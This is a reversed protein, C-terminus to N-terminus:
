IAWTGSGLMQNLLFTENDFEAHSAAEFSATEITDNLLLHGGAIRAPMVNICPLCRQLNGSMITPFHRMSIRQIHLRIVAM